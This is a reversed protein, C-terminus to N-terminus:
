SSASVGDVALLRATIEPYLDTAMRLTMSCSNDFQQGLIEVDSAKVIKMVDNMAM